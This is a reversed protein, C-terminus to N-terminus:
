MSKNTMPVIPLSSHTWTSRVTWPPIRPILKQDRSYRWNQSATNPPHSATNSPHSATNSPDRATNPPDSKSGEFVALIFHGYELPWFFVGRIGGAVGQIGGAMGRIGGPYFPPIRPILLHDRSYRWSSHSGCPGMARQRNNWHSVFAHLKRFYLNWIHLIEFINQGRNAQFLSERTIWQYGPRLVLNPGNYNRLKEQIKPLKMEEHYFLYFERRISVLEFYVPTGFLRSTM